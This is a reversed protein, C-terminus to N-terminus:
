NVSIEGTPQPRCPGSSEYDHRRTLLLISHLTKGAAMVRSVQVAITTMLAYIAINCISM